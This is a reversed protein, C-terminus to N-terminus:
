KKAERKAADRLRRLVWRLARLKWVHYRIRMRARATM